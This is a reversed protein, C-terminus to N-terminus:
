FSPPQCRSFSFSFSVFLSRRLGQFSCWTSPDEMKLDKRAPRATFDALCTLSAHFSRCGFLLGGELQDRSLSRKM